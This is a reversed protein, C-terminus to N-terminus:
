AICDRVAVLGFCILEYKLLYLIHLFSSLECICDIFRLLSNNTNIATNDKKEINKNLTQVRLDLAKNNETLIEIQEKNNKLEDEVDNLMVSLNKINKYEKNTNDVQEIYSILKNKDDLLSTTM